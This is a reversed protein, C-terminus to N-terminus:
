CRIQKERRHLCKAAYFVKSVNPASRMEVVDDDVFKVVCRRRGVTADNVIKFRLKQKPQCRRWLSHVPTVKQSQTLFIENKFCRHRITDRCAQETSELVPTNRIHDVVGINGPAVRAEVGRLKRRCDGGVRASLVSKLLEALM